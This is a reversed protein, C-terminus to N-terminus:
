HNSKSTLDADFNALRADAFVGLLRWASRRASCRLCRAFDDAVGFAAGARLPRTVMLGM